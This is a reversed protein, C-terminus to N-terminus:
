NAKIIWTFGGATKRKGKAAETISSGCIGLCNAADKISPFTQIYVSGLWQEVKKYHAAARRKKEEENMKRGKIWFNKGKLAQSIKSKHEETM